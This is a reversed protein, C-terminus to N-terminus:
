WPSEPDQGVVTEIGGYREQEWERRARRQSAISWPASVVMVAWCGLLAALPGVQVSPSAYRLLGGGLVGLGVFFPLASVRPHGTRRITGVQSRAGRILPGVILVGAIVGWEIAVQSANHRQGRPLAHIDGILSAANGATLGGLGVVFFLGM